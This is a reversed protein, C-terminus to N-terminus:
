GPSRVNRDFYENDMTRNGNDRPVAKAIGGQVNPVTSLGPSPACHISDIWSRFFGHVLKRRTPVTTCSQNLAMRATTAAQDPEDTDTRIYYGTSWNRGPLRHKNGYSRYFSVVNTGTDALLLFSLGQRLDCDSGYRGAFLAVTTTPTTTTTTTM